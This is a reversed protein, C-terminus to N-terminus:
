WPNTSLGSVAQGTLEAAGDLTILDGFTNSIGILLLVVGTTKVARAAAELFNDWSLSRYVFL